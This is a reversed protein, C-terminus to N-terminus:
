LQPSDSNKVEDEDLQSRDVIFQDIEDLVSQPEIDTLITEKDKESLESHWHIMEGPKRPDPLNEIRVIYNKLRDLRRRGESIDMEFNDDAGKKKRNGKFRVKGDQSNFRERVPLLKVFFRTQEAEPSGRDCEPVFAIEKTSDITKLM